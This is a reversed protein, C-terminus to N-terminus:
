SHKMALFVYCPLHMYMGNCNGCFLVTLLSKGEYYFFCILRYRHLRNILLSKYKGITIITFNEWIRRCFLSKGYRLEIVATQHCHRSRFLRSSTHPILILIPPPVHTAGGGHQRAAPTQADRTRLRPPPRFLRNHSM